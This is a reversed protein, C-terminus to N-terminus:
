KVVIEHITSETIMGRYTKRTEVSTKGPKVAEFVFVSTAADGGTMGHGMKEPHLYTVDRCVFRVVAEDGVASAMVALM